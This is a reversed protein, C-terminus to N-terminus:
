IIIKDKTILTVTISLPSDYDRFLPSAIVIAGAAGIPVKDRSSLARSSNKFLEPDVVAATRTDRSSAHQTAPITSESALTLPGRGFGEDACESLSCRGKGRM